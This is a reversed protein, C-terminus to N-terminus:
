DQFSYAVLLSNLKAAIAAGLAALNRIDMRKSSRYGVFHYVFTKV